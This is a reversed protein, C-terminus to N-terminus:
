PRLGKRREENIKRINAAARERAAITKPSAVHQKMHHGKVFRNGEKVPVGCGCECLKAQVLNEGNFLEIEERNAYNEIEDMVTAWKVKLHPPLETMLEVLRADVKNIIVNNIDGNVVTSGAAAVTGDARMQLERDAMAYKLLVEIAQRAQSESQSNALMVLRKMVSPLARRSISISEVEESSLNTMGTQYKSNKKSMNM